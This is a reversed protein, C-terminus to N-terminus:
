AVAAQRRRRAAAAAALGAAFLAVTGPESVTTPAQTATFTLVVDQLNMSGVTDAITFDLLNTAALQALDSSGLTASADLAGYFGQTVTNTQTYITDYGYTGNGAYGAFTEPGTVTTPAQNSVAGTGTASGAQLSMTDQVTDTNTITTTDLLTRYAAYGYEPAYAYSCGGWASCSITYEYYGTVVVGGSVSLATSSQTSSSQNFAADSFGYATVTADSILAASIGQAALLSSISFAGSYTSGPSSLVQSLNLDETLVVSAHAAPAVVGTAIAAAIAKNITSNGM